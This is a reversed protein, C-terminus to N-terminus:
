AASKALDEPLFPNDTTAMEMAPGVLYGLAFTRFFRESHDAFHRTIDAFSMGLTILTKLERVFARFHPSNGITSEGGGFIAFWISVYKIILFKDFMRASLRTREEQSAGRSQLIGDMQEALLQWKTVVNVNKPMTMESEEIGFEELIPGLFITESLQAAHLLQDAWNDAVASVGSHMLGSLGIKSAEGASRQLSKGHGLDVEAKTPVVKDVTDGIGILVPYAYRNLVKELGKLSLGQATVVFVTEALTPGVHMEWYDYSLSDLARPSHELMEAIHGLREIMSIRRENVGAAEYDGRSAEGLSTSLAGVCQSIHGASRDGQKLAKMLSNVADLETRSLSEDEQTGAVHSNGLAILENQIVSELDQCARRVLSMDEECGAIGRPINMGGGSAAKLINTINNLIGTIISFRAGSNRELGVVGAVFNFISSIFFNVSHRLTSTNLLTGTDVGLRQAVLRTEAIGNLCSLLYNVTATKIMEDAGFSQYSGVLAPAVDALGQTVDMTSSMMGLGLNAFFAEGAKSLDESSCPADKDARAACFNILAEQVRPNDTIKGEKLANEIESASYRNLSEFLRRCVPLASELRIRTLDANGFAFLPVQMMAAMFPAPGIIRTLADIHLGIQNSVQEIAVKNGSIASERTVEQSSDAEEQKNEEFKAFLSGEAYDIGDAASTLLAILEVGVETEHIVHHAEEKKEEGLGGSAMYLNLLLALYLNPHPFHGNFGHEADYKGVLREVAKPYKGGKGALAGAIATTLISSFSKGKYPDLSDSAKAGIKGAKGSLKQVAQIVVNEGALGMVLDIFNLTILWYVGDSSELYKEVHEPSNTIDEMVDYAHSAIDEAIDEADNGGDASNKNICGAYPAIITAGVAGGLLGLFRRRSLNRSLDLDGSSEQDTTTEDPHPTLFLNLLAAKAKTVFEHREM